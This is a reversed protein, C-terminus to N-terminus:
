DDIRVQVTGDVIRVPYTQTPEFAPPATPEGTRIDFLAGHRPCTIEDGEFEGGCLPIMDHTCLDALAYFAGQRNFVLVEVGDVEACVYSDVAVEAVTCVDFWGPESVTADAPDTKAQLRCRTAASVLGASHRGM